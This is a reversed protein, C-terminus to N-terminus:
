KLIYKDIADFQDFSYWLVLNAARINPCTKGNATDWEYHCFINWNKIKYLIVLNNLVNRLENFQEYTFRDKGALCIGVNNTNHMSVHSGVTDAPRTCVSQGDPQIIYHYGIGGFGRAIHDKEIVELSVHEGNATDACHITIKNPIM